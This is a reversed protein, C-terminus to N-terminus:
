RGRDLFGITAAACALCPPRYTDPWLWVDKRGVRKALRDLESQTM